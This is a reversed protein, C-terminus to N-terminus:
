ERGEEERVLRSVLKDDGLRMIGGGEWGSLCDEDLRM